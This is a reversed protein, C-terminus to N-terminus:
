KNLIFRGFVGGRQPRFDGFGFFKGIWDFASLLMKETIAADVITGSITLKWEPIMPRIVVISSKKQLICVKKFPKLDTEKIQDGEFSQIISDEFVVGSVFYDYMSSDQRKANPPAIPFANRKQSAKLTEKFWEGPAFIFGEPNKHAKLLWTRESFEQHTESRNKKFKDPNEEQDILISRRNQLLPSVGKIPILFDTM